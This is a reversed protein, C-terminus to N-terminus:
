FFHPASHFAALAAPLISFPIFHGCYQLAHLLRRLARSACSLSREDRAALSAFKRSGSTGLADALSSTEGVGETTMPVPAGRFLRM